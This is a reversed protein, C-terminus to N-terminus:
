IMGPLRALRQALPPLDDQVIRWVIRLDIRAYGHAIRHRLSILDRWPILPDLARTPESLRNAEEGLVLLNLSVADATLGSALFEAETVGATYAQMKEAAVLM